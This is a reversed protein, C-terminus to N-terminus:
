KSKIMHVSVSVEVSKLLSTCDNLLKKVNTSEKNLLSFSKNLPFVPFRIHDCQLLHQNIKIFDYQFFSIRHLQLSDQWHLNDKKLSHKYTLTKQTENYVYKHDWFRILIFTKKDYFCVGKM